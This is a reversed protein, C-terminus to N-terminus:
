NTDVVFLFSSITVSKTMEPWNGFPHNPVTISLLTLLTLYRGYEGM